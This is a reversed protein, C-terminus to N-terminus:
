FNGYLAAQGRRAAELEEESLSRQAPDPSAPVGARAGVKGLEERNASLYEIQEVPDLKDLLVLVHKPLDKKEAQLYKDLAGKYRTVQEGLPELEGMRAELESARAANKEALTQWEQNKKLAEAEADERAKLAAKERQTKERELRDKVIRDLDAQTFLMAAPRSGEGEPLPSPTLNSQSAAPQAAAQASQAAGAPAAAASENGEEIKM